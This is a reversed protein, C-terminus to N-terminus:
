LEGSWDRNYRNMAVEVGEEVACRAAEGSVEVLRPLRKTEDPTFRGLVHGVAGREPRGIGIRLRPFQETGLEQIISKLGGNGGSSGQPRLRLTGFPLDLDDCIVLTQDFPVHYYRVLHRVAIGSENMYTKPVAFLVNRPGLRGRGVSARQRSSTLHVGEQGALKEVVTSGVNHRTGAYQSGPNGLGIVLALDSDAAVGQRRRWFQM